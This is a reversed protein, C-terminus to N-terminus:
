GEAEWPGRLASVPDAVSSTRVLRVAHRDRRALFPMIGRALFASAVRESLAVEASSALQREGGSDFTDPPMDELELTADSDFSWGHERYSRGLLEALGFAGSGWLRFSPDGGAGVPLEEFSFADIPATRKGYPLRVLLRPFVLGISPAIPSTRLASWLPPVDAEWKSPDRADDAAGCGFLSPAADALLVAGGRASLAGLAALVEVEEQSAAFALDVAVVSWARGSEVIHEHLRTRALDGGASRIEHALDALRADLLWVELEEDTDLSTILRHAGRWPAEVARFAPTALVSRMQLGLAEDLAALLAVRRAGTDRTVHPAVASQLLSEVVGQPASPVNATARAPRGLLRALTAEDSSSGPAASAAPVATAAVANTAVGHRSLWAEVAAFAEDSPAATAIARRLARPDDFVPLRAFLSDPELHDLEEIPLITEGDHTPFSVHAEFSAFARDLNAVDTRVPKPIRPPDDPRGIRGSFDGVLLLRFPTESDDSRPRRAGTTGFTFNFDM